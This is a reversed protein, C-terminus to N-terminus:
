KKIKKAILLIMTISLAGCLAMFMDKQSDWIDGQLWLNADLVVQKLSNHKM